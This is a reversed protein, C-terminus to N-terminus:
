GKSIDQDVQNLFRSLAVPDDKLAEATRADAEKLRQIVQDHDQNLREIKKDRTAAAVKREAEAKEEAEHAVQQHEVLTPSQVVVNRRGARGLLYLLIGVPALLWRWNKKVWAWAAAIKSV